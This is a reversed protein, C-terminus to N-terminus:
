DGRKSKLSIECLYDYSHLPIFYICVYLYMYYLYYKSANYGTILTIYM